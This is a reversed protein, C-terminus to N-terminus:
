WEKVKGDLTNIIQGPKLSILRQSQSLQLNIPVTIGQRQNIEIKFGPQYIQNKGNVWVTTPGQSRIILGNLTLTAPLKPSISVGKDTNPPPPPPKARELNLTAREQPTTFLRYLGETAWSTPSLLSMTGIMVLLWQTSKVTGNIRIVKKIRNFKQSIGPLYV